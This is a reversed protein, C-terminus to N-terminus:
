KRPAEHRVLKILFTLLLSVALLELSEEVFTDMLWFGPEDYPYERVEIREAFEEWPRRELGAFQHIIRGGLVAYWDAFYRTASSAAAVLYLTFGSLLFPVLDRHQAVRFRIRVLSAIVLCGIASYLLIEIANKALRADYSERSPFLSSVISDGVRHRLNGADEILMLSFAIALLAFASACSWARISGVGWLYASMVICGSLFFWQIWETPGGERGIAFWIPFDPRDSGWFDHILVLFFATILYLVALRLPFTSSLLYPRSM